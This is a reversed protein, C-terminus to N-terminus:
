ATPQINQNVSFFNHPDYQNKVSVLRDYNDLYAELVRDHGEDDLSNVYVGRSHPTLSNWLLNMRETAAESEAPEMWSSGAFFSFGGGRHPYATEASDIRTVGGPQHYLGLFLAPDAAAIADVVDDNLESLIGGRQLTKQGPVPTPGMSQAVIYPVVGIQEMMPTGFARIPAIVSEGVAPDGLYCVSIMVVPGQPLPM